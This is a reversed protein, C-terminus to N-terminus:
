ASGMMSRRRRLLELEPELESVWEGERGVIGRAELRGERISWREPASRFNAQAATMGRVAGVLRAESARLEGVVFEREEQHMVGM